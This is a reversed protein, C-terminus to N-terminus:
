SITKYSRNKSKRSKNRRTKYRRTKNRKKYGTKKSRYYKRKSGGTDPGLVSGIYSKNSREHYQFQPIESLPVSLKRSLEELHRNILYREIGTREEAYRSLCDKIKQLVEHEIDINNGSSFSLYLFSNYPEKDIVYDITTNIDYMKSKVSKIIERLKKNEPNSMHYQKPELERLYDNLCSLIKNLVVEEALVGEETASM